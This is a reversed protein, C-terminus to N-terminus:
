RSRLRDLADRAAQADGIRPPDREIEGRAAHRIFDIVHRLFHRAEEARVVDIVGRAETM